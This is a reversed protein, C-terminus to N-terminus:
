GAQEVIESVGGFALIWPAGAPGPVIATPNLVVLTTDLLRATGADADDVALALVEGKCYDTYLLRGDLSPVTSSRPVYGAVIGCWGDAHPHEQAPELEGGPVQGGEFRHTGEVHDWGLNSGGAGDPGTDLRDLEEWCSHGVDGLWLEATEADLGLRFPNRVGLLWIEPAWRPDGVFPNDAPIRYPEAAAPTPDIRVVKGLLTRPDQANEDPDGLGGGDGFGVYLLGDTGVALSGGHHQISSSHDVALIVRGAGADPRGDGDLPYAVLVDDRDADARYVYLWDAGPGYALALLGGDGEQMTDDTLDIVVDDTLQGADILKVRGSREGLFGDGSEDPAFVATTPADALGVPRLLLSGPTVNPIPPGDALEPCARDAAIRSPTPGDDVSGRVLAVAVATGSAVLALALAVFAAIWRTM